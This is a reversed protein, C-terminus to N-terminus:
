PRCSLMSKNGGVIQRDTLHPYAILVLREVQQVCRDLLVRWADGEYTYFRPEVFQPGVLSERGQQSREAQM